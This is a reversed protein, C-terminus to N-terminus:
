RIERFYAKARDSEARHDVVPEPYGEPIADTSRNLRRIVSPPLSRLEPVWRKIYVAEPDYRKGQTWPNFVRFYPQADCGTSAAWQWNGNNVSPDYDVLHRAFYREGWRWDVHLDKVLFSAAVMRARNHMFGTTNLERMGADVLPFGTRGETWARFVTEDNEWRLADYKEQFAGGFVRPFQFAVHTFFDRWYLQRILPHEPGLRRAIARHVERVSLTGFKLHASLRTTSVSPHDRGVEYDRFRAISRLIKLGESRGGRVALEPNEVELLGKLSSSREGSIRGRVYNSRRNRRPAEVGRLISARHFATFVRYPTGSQSLVEGPENLLADGSSHFGVERRRCFDDIERDRERSFPTYDRNVYVADIGEEELLRDIVKVPRGRLLALRAGKRKLRRDLDILSDRMFQLANPSRFPHDEVQKPDLIFVPVVSDSSSLALILGTNDELRLDRRFVFLAKRHARM